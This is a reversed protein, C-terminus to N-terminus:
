SIKISAQLIEQAIRFAHSSLHRQWTGESPTWRFGNQKLQNRMSQEPKEPFFIQVRNAEVNAVIRYEGVTIEKTSQSELKELQLIREKIRRMNAANNTLAYQPFGLRNLCDPTNLKLWTEDTGYELKLFAEKNKTRICKNSAKMFSQLKELNNLKDKLKTIANPDDSSIATNNEITKVKETYYDAKEAAEFSKGFTNHIKDRFRRDSKESHHGVLIPQGFPIVASMQKAKTHLQDSHTKNKQAMQKANEIRRAKREEFNNKM